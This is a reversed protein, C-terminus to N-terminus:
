KQPSCLREVEQRKKRFANPSLRQLEGPKMDGLNFPGHSLRCLEEVPFGLAEFVRRIIRNRGEHIEVVLESRNKVQRLSQVRLVAKRDDIPVGRRLADEEKAGLHGTVVVSYTKPIEFSPHMLWHAMEGDNTFVVLGTSDFDLRGVPFHVLRDKEPLYDTVTPRGEPDHRSSIVNKPKHFLFAGTTHSSILKNEVEVKDTAPDVKVGLTTVVEGNVRVKGSLILQESARRSAVGCQALYRQLRMPEESRSQNTNM